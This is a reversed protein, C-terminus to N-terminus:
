IDSTDEARHSVVVRIKTGQGPRSEVTLHGGLSRAREQMSVLGFGHRAEAVQEVDFSRGDDRVCLEVTQPGFSLEVEITAAEAHRLANSLAEQGIRLLHAEVEASLPRPTGEVCLSTRVSTSSTLEHLLM